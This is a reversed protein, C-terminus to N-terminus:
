LVTTIDLSFDSFTLFSKGMASVWQVSKKIHCVTLLELCHQLTPTGAVLVVFEPTLRIIQVLNWLKVRTAENM